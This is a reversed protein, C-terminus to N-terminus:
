RRQRAACPARCSHPRHRADAKDPATLPRGDGVAPAGGQKRSGLLPGSCVASSEGGPRGVMFPGGRVRRAALALGPRRTWELKAGEGKSRRPRAPGRSAAVAECVWNRPRGSRAGGPCIDWRGTAPILHCKQVPLSCRHTSTATTCYSLPDPDEAHRLLVQRRGSAARGGLRGYNGSRPQVEPRSTPRCSRSREHVPLAAPLRRPAVYARWSWLRLRM